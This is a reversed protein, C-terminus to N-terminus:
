VATRSRLKLANPAEGFVWISVGLLVVDKALFQGPGGAGGSLAPFGGLPAAWAGPTSLLFSLTILFMCIAMLGGIQAARASLRRVAILLATTIEIVGLAASITRISTFNLMWAMFPSHSVLPLIGQAEYDTFKMLGVWVIVLALGYRAFAKGFSEFSVGDLVEVRRTPLATVSDSTADVYEM